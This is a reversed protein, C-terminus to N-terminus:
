LALVRAFHRAADDYHGLREHIESQRLHSVALLPIEGFRHRAIRVMAASRARAGVLGSCRRAVPTRQRSVFPIMAIDGQSDRCELAELLRLAEERRGAHFALRARLGRDLDRTLANASGLTAFRQLKAAAAAAATPDNLRM